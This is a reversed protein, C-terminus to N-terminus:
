DSLEIVEILKELSTVGSEKSAVRKKVPSKKPSAAVARPTPRVQMLFGKCRGCRQKEIDISKSHRGYETM